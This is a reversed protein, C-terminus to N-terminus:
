NNWLIWGHNCYHWLPISTLSAFMLLHYLCVTRWTPPLWNSFFLSLPVVIANCLFCIISCCGLSFSTANRQSNPYKFRVYDSVAESHLFALHWDIFLNNLLCYGEEDFFTCPSMVVSLGGQEVSTVMGCSGKVDSCSLSVFYGCTGTQRFSCRGTYIYEGLSERIWFVSTLIFINVPVQFSAWLKGKGVLKIWRDMKKLSLFSM